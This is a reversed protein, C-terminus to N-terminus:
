HVQRHTKMGKEIFSSGMSCRVQKDIFERLSLDEYFPSDCNGGNKTDGVLNILLNCNQIVIHEGFFDRYCLTIM